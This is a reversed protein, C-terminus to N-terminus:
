RGRSHKGTRTTFLGRSHRLECDVPEDGQQSLDVGFIRAQVWAANVSLAVGVVQTARLPYVRSSAKDHTSRCNQASWAVLDSLTTMCCTKVGTTRTSIMSSKSQCRTKDHRSLWESHLVYETVYQPLINRPAYWVSKLSLKNRELQRLLPWCLTLDGRGMSKLHLNTASPTFAAKYNYKFM